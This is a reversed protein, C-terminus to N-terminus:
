KGVVGGTGGVAERRGWKVNERSDLFVGCV